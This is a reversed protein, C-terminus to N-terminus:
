KGNLKMVSDYINLGRGRSVIYAITVALLAPLELVFSGTFEMVVVAATTLLATVVLFLLLL